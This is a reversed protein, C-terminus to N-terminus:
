NAAFNKILIVAGRGAGGEPRSQRPLCPCRSASRLKPGRPSSLSLSIPLAPHFPPPPADMIAATQAPLTLLVYAHNTSKINFNGPAPRPPAPEGSKNKNKAAGRAKAGGRSSHNLKHVPSHRPRPRGACCGGRGVCAPGAKRRTPRTFHFM